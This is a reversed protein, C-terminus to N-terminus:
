SFTGHAASEIHEAQSDLWRVVYEPILVTHLADVLRVAARSEDPTLVRGMESSM